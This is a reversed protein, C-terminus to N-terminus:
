AVVHQVAVVGRWILCKLGSFAGFLCVAMNLNATHFLITMAM